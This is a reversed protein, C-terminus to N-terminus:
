KASDPGSTSRGREIDKRLLTYLHHAIDLQESGLNQSEAPDTSMDYLQYTPLKQQKAESEKPSTWGGSVGPSYFNGLGMRYGFHGSISSHILGNRDAVLPQDYFASLFSVSDEASTDPIDDILLDVVTAFFDTLCITENYHSGPPIEGPWRLSPFGIVERGSILRRVETRVVSEIARKQLNM